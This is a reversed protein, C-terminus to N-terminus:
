IMGPDYFEEKLLRVPFPYDVLQVKGTKPWVVYFQYAVTDTPPSLTKAANLVLEATSKGLNQRLLSGNKGVFQASVFVADLQPFVASAWWASPASCMEMMCDGAELVRFVDNINTPNSLLMCGRGVSQYIEFSTIRQETTGDFRVNGFQRFDTQHATEADNAVFHYGHRKGGSKKMLDDNASKLLASILSTKGCCRPGVVASKFVPEHKGVVYRTEAVPPLPEKAPSSSEPAQPAGAPLVTSSIAGKPEVSVALSPTVTVTIKVDFSLTQSASLTETLTM